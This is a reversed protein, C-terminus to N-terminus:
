YCNLQVFRDFAIGNNNIHEIYFYFLSYVKVVIAALTATCCCLLKLSFNDNYKRFYVCVRTNSCFLLWNLQLNMSNAGNFGNFHTTHLLICVCARMCWCMNVCVVSALVFMDCILEILIFYIFLYICM